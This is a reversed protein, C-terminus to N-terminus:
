NIRALLEKGIESEIYGNNQAWDQLAMGDKEAATLDSVGMRKIMYTGTEVSGNEMAYRILSNGGCSIGTYYDGLRLRYDNQVGRLKKRLESKDDNKVITCINALDDNIDAFSAPAFTFASVAGILILTSKKM